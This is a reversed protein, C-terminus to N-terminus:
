NLTVVREGSFTDTLTRLAVFAAQYRTVFTQEYLLAKAQTATSFDPSKSDFSQTYPMDTRILIFKDPLTYTFTVPYSTDDFTGGVNITPEGFKRMLEKDSEPLAALDLSFTIKWIDNEISRKIRLLPAM